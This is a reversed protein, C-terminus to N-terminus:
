RGGDWPAILFHRRRSSQWARWNIESDGSTINALLSPVCVASIDGRPLTGPWTAMNSSLFKATALDTLCYDAPCSECYGTSEARRNATKLEPFTPL